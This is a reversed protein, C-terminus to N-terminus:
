AAPAKSGRKRGSGNSSTADTGDEAPGPLAAGDIVVGAPGRDELALQQRLQGAACDVVGALNNLAAALNAAANRIANLGFM